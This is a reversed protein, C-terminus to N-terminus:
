GDANSSREEDKDEEVIGFLESIDPMKEMQTLGSVELLKILRKAVSDSLKTLNNNVSDEEDIKERLKKLREYDDLLVEEFVKVIKDPRNLHLKAVFDDDGLKEKVSKLAEIEEQTIKKHNACLEGIKGVENMCETGDSRVYSCTYVSM